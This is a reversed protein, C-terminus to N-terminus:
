VTYAMGGQMVGILAAQQEPSESFGMVTEARTAAGSALNDTHFLFGGADPERHLAYSYLQTVFDADSLNGFRQQFEPSRIFNNALQVLGLGDDLAKM